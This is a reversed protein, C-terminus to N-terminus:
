GGSLVPRVPPEIHPEIYKRAADLQTKQPGISAAIPEADAETVFSLGTLRAYDLVWAADVAAPESPPPLPTPPTGQATLPARRQVWGAAQEYAHGLRFLTPEAWARGIVQLSVPLGAETFGCPLALAPLGTLSVPRTLSRTDSQASAGGIRHAPFASTPSVIVDV